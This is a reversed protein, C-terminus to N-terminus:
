ELLASVVKCFIYRLIMGFAFFLVLQYHRVKPM